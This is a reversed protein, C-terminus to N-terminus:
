GVAVVFVGTGLILCFMTLAAVGLLLGLRRNSGGSRHIKGGGPGSVHAVRYNPISMAQRRYLRKKETLNWDFIVIVIAAILMMSAPVWLIFGGATEDTLAAVGFLRGKIDYATYLVTTKFVTIAGLLINAVIAAFLLVIRLFHTPASPLDRRDFIMAFFLFGSALMTLHMAWHIAPDLLAGNHIAPIQWVYLSLVFLLFAAVPGTLRRYLGSIAGNAMLPAVLSRRLAEPMGAILVGHPRSLVVLMPGVMRLLLHQIQHALFLREGMPDVPSQLSLFLALMGGAFLAHRVASVPQSASRRRVAGRVYIALILLIPGSIEPTPSWASWADSASLGEGGHALAATTTLLAAALIPGGFFRRVPHARNPYILDVRM